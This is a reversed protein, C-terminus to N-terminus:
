VERLFSGVFCSAFFVYWCFSLCIFSFCEALVVFRTGMDM